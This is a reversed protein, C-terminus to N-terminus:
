LQQKLSKNNYSVLQAWILLRRLCDNVDLRWALRANVGFLPHGCTRACKYSGGDGGFTAPLGSDRPKEVNLFWRPWQRVGGDRNVKINETQHQRSLCDHKALRDIPGTELVNIKKRKLGGGKADLAFQDTGPGRRVAQGASVTRQEAERSDQPSGEAVLLCSM